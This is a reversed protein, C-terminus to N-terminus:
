CVARVLLLRMYIHLVQNGVVDGKIYKIKKSM